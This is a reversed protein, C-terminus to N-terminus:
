LNDACRSIHARIMGRVVMLLTDSPVFGTGNGVAANSVHDIADGLRAAKMDKPQGLPAYRGSVPNDKSPTGGSLWVNWCQRASANAM